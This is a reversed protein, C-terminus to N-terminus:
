LWLGVAHVTVALFGDLPCETRMGLGLVAERSAMADSGGMVNDGGTDGGTDGGADGGTDGGTKHGGGAAGGHKCALRV